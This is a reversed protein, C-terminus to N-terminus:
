GLVTGKPIPDAARAPRLNRPLIIRFLTGHGLESEVEIRGAHARVINQVIPLGLGTGGAQTRAKDARWFRHFIRSRNERSIGVGEDGVRVELDRQSVEVQVWIRGGAPSYKIANDLLNSIAQEFLRANIWPTLEAPCDLEVSHRESRVAAADVCAQLLPELPTAELQVVGGLADQEVRSLQLLDEILESLHQTQEVIISLFREAVEQDELGGERLTEAFGRISTVPTRLEHSVSAVFDRQSQELRELRTIDHLVVVAGLLTGDSEYLPTGIAEVYRTPGDLLAINAVIPTDTQEEHLSRVLFRQVGAHRIVEFLSRGPIADPDVNLLRGAAGNMGLLREDTDVALVGEAMSALVAQQRKQQTHLEELRAQLESAVRNIAAALRDTEELWTSEPLRVDVEGAAMREAARRMAILSRMLQRSVYVALLAALLLGLLAGLTLAHDLAARVAAVRQAGLAETDLATLMLHRVVLAAVVIAGAFAALLALFVGWVSRQAHASM